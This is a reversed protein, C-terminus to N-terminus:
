IDAWVERIVAETAIVQGQVMDAKGGGKAGCKERLAAAILQSNALYRYGETDNGTFVGVYGSYKRTLENYLNRSALASFDATVFVLADDNINNVSNTNTNTNTTNTASCARRMQREYEENLLVSEVMVKDLRSKLELIEQLHNQTITLLNDQNTTLLNTLDKVINQQHNVYELARSGALMSVRVGGKWNVVSIVKIIGIEGTRKVHPACCACRDVIQTSEDGITIIRVQGAIEKKSRYDMTSLEEDTPYTDIIPINAYIISNAIAEMRVAQDYDLQGNLDLTVFDDDSLHFGVNDYGYHNHITSTLIHEGSHNQMRSYRKDWDDGDLICTVNMGIKITETVETKELKYLIGGSVKDIQGDLVRVPKDSVMIVGTDAYQGGEEPFFITDELAVYVTDNKCIADSIRTEIRKLYSDREYIKM